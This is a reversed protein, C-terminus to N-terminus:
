GYYGFLFKIGTIIPTYPKVVETIIERGGKTGIVLSTGLGVAVGTIGLTSANQITMSAINCAIQKCSSDFHHQNLQEHQDEHFTKSQALNHDHFVQQQIASDENHMKIQSLNEQQFVRSQELSTEHFLRNQELSQQHFVLNQKVNYLHHLEALEMNDRHQNESLKLQRELAFKQMLYSFGLNISLPIAIQLVTGIHPKIYEKMIKYYWSKTGNNKRVLAISCELDAFRLILSEDYNLDEPGNLDVEGWANEVIKQLDRCSLGATKKVLCNIEKDKIEATIYNPVISLYYRIISQRTATSPFEITFVSTSMRSLLQEPLNTIKNATGIILINPQDEFEDLASWLTKAAEDDKEKRNRNKVLCQMEDLIVIHLDKANRVFRFAESLNHSGSDKFKDYIDTLKIFTM